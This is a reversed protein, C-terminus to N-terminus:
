AAAGAVALSLAVPPTVMEQTAGASPLSAITSYLTSILFEPDVKSTSLLAQSPLEDPTSVFLDHTTGMLM